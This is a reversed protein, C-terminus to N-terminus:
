HKRRPRIFLGAGIGIFSILFYLMANPDSMGGFLILAAGILALAPYIFGELVTNDKFKLYDILIKLYLSGYFVYTLVIPLSDIKLGSLQLSGLSYEMVSLYHLVSWVCVMVFAFLGSNLPIKTKSNLRKFAESCPFDDRVALAYPLRIYGLILGNVSGLISISVALYVLKMGFAGFLENVIYGVSGDGLEMILDPGLMANIGVFYILYVFLIILPSIVLAKTLNKKPNRIEHAITPAVFWGDFSFACAVLGVFLTTGSGQYTQSHQFTINQTSGFYLGIASLALLSGIKIVMSANQLWAAKGSSMLNLAFVLIIITLMIFWIRPDSSDSVGFVLGIYIAGIWSLVSIIAPFYFVTQFWGALYAFNKGWAMECYTILGGVAASKKAYQAVCLGGFVIGFAGVIWLLIGLGVNGKTAYLVDDTKFFIGSGIVVGCIMSITTFLGFERTKTKM